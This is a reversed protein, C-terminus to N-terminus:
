IFVGVPEKDNFVKQLKYTNATVNETHCNIDAIIEKAMERAQPDDMGQIPIKIILQYM